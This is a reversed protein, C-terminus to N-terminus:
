MCNGKDAEKSRRLAPLTQKALDRPMSVSLLALPEKILEDGALEGLESPPPPAQGGAQVAPAEGPM